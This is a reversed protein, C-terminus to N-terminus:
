GDDTVLSLHTISEATNVSSPTTLILYYFSVMLAIPEYTVKGSATPFDYKISADIAVTNKSKGNANYRDIWVWMYEPMPGPFTLQVKYM